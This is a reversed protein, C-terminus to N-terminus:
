LMAIIKPALWTIIIYNAPIHVVMFKAVGAWTHGTFAYLTGTLGDYFCTLILATLPLGYIKYSFPALIGMLAFGVSMAVVDQPREITYFGSLASSCIGVLAGAFPGYLIGSVITVLSVLEIGLSVPAMRQPIRSIAGVLVFGLLVLVTKVNLFVIGFVALAFVAVFVGIYKLLDVPIEPKVRKAKTM